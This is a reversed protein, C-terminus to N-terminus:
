IYIDAIYVYFFDNRLTAACVARLTCRVYM